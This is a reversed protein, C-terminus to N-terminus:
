KYVARGPSNTPTSATTVPSGEKKL